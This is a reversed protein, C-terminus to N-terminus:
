ENDRHNATESEFILWRSVNAATKPGIGSIKELDNHSMFVPRASYQQRFHIIDMARAKGIGPLRTLSAMPATNPNIKEPVM